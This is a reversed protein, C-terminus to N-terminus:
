DLGKRARELALEVKSLIGRMIRVDRPGPTRRSVMRRVVNMMRDPTAEEIFGIEDLVQEIHGYLGELESVTALNKPAPSPRDATALHVEHMEYSFLAVAQSLNLSSLSPATPIRVMLQCKELDSNALGKDESGFVGALRGTLPNEALGLAAPRLDMGETRKKGLRTTFGWSMEVDSLADSLESYTRADELIPVAKTRAMAELMPDDFIGEAPRVLRLDTLGFNAMVRATAGLNGGYLPEVLVVSINELM